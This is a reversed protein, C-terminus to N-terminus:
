DGVDILLSVETEDRVRCPITRINLDECLTRVIQSCTRFYFQDIDLTSSIGSASSISTEVSRILDDADATSLRDRICM